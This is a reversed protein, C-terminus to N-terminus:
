GVVGACVVGVASVWVWVVCAGKECDFGLPVPLGQRSVRDSGQTIDTLMDSNQYIWNNLLGLQKKGHQIRAENLMSVIGAFTPAAASTGGVSTQGGNVIIQFGMGLAAVDPTGRGGYGYTSANPAKTEESYFTAIPATQWAPAPTIVRSFGGGSGFSSVAREGATPDAANIFNTAGVATVYTSSAPWSAYLEPDYGFFSTYGSGSDGSAIIITIGAAAMSKFDADISDIQTTSCGIQSMKGQWGDACDMPLRTLPSARFVFGRVLAGWWWGVFRWLVCLVCLVRQASFVHVPCGSDLGEHGLLLWLWRVGM